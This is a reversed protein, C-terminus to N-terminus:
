GRPQLCGTALLGFTYESEPARVGRHRARAHAWPARLERRHRAPAAQRVRDHWGERRVLAGTRALLVHIRVHARCPVPTLTSSCPSSTSASAASTSRLAGNELQLGRVQLAARGRRQVSVQGEAGYADQTASPLSAFPNKRANM